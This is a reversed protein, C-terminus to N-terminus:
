LQVIKQATISHVHLRKPNHPCTACRKVIWKHRNSVRRSDTELEMIAKVVLTFIRILNHWSRQICKLQWMKMVDIEIHLKGIMFKMIFRRLPSSKTKRRICAFCIWQEPGKAKGFVRWQSFLARKNTVPFWNNELGEFAMNILFGNLKLQFGIHQKSIKSSLPRRQAIFARFLSIAFRSRFFSKIAILQLFM